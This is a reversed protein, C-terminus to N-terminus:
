RFILNQILNPNSSFAYHNLGLDSYEEITEFTISPNASISNYNWGYRPYTLVTSLSLNPNSSFYYASFELDIDTENFNPNRALIEFDWNLQPNQRVFEPTILRNTSVKGWNWNEDPNELLLLELSNRFKTM